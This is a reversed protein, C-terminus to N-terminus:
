LEVMRLNEGKNEIKLFNCKQDPRMRRYKTDYGFGKKARLVVITWQNPQFEFNRLTNDKNGNKLFYTKQGSRM